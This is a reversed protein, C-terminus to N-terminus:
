FQLLTNKLKLYNYVADAFERPNIKSSLVLGIHGSLSVEFEEVWSQTQSWEFLKGFGEWTSFDPIHQYNQLYKSEGPVIGILSDNSIQTWGLVSALFIDREYNNTKM